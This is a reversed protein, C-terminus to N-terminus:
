CYNEGQRVAQRLWALAESLPVRTDYPQELIASARTGLVWEWFAGFSQAAHLRDYMDGAQVRLMLAWERFGAPTPQSRQQWYARLERRAQWLAALQRPCEVEPERQEQANAAWERLQWSLGVEVRGQQRASTSVRVRPSHRVPLDHRCLARWLAEDELYRVVPLGGVQRYAAVTLALSAGFHQHHRPWPDHQCPDLLCELQNRLLHYTADRLQTRRVALADSVLPESCPNIAVLEEPEPDDPRTLIRGGVAAAGAAVEAQCAALWDPAVLTDADTSLILGNPGATLELRQAAADMLLRRAQGVHALEGPLQLEAVHLALGPYCYALQRVVAATHDQCNNALVIIELCGLSLPTGDLATQTALAALTAPLHHAEDKAPIIVCARLEPAPPPLQRWLARALQAPTTLPRPLRAQRPLLAPTAMAERTAHFRAPTALNSM